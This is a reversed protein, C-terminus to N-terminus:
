KRKQENLYRERAADIEARREKEYQKAKDLDRTSLRTTKKKKTQKEFYDTLPKRMSTWRASITHSKAIEDPTRYANITGKYPGDKKKFANKDTPLRAINAWARFRPSRLISSQFFSWCSTVFALWQMGAPLNIFILTTMGPLVYLMFTMMGPPM